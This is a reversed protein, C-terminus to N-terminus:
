QVVVVVVVSDVASDYDSMGTSRNLLLVIMSISLITTYVIIM